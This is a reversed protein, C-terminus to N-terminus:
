FIAKAYIVYQPTTTCGTSALTSTTTYSLSTGSKAVVAQIGNNTFASTGFTAAGSDVAGNGTFGMNSSPNATEVTGGPATFTVANVTVSNTSASCGVGATVQVLQFLLSVNGTSPLSAIITQSSLATGYNTAASVQIAAHAASFGDITPTTIAPSTIAPSGAWSGGGTITPNTITPTNITPSTLTKSTLTQTDSIGVITSAPATLGNHLQANLNPVVTTSAISLPATGTAVTSTIQGSATLSSVSLSGLPCTSNTVCPLTLTQEKSVVGVGVFSINYTGPAAAFGYNGFADTQFPNATLTALTQDTYVATYPACNWSAGASVTQVVTGNTSATANAHSLNFTVATSTATSLVFSGNFYTDAGTFGSVTITGQASFGSTQPNSSMTLTAVGNTVSAATTAMGGAWCVAVTANRVPSVSAGSGTLLINDYRFGSQAFVGSAAILSLLFILAARRMKNDMPIGHKFNLIEM